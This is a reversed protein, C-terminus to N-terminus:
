VYNNCGFERRLVEWLSCEDDSYTGDPVVGEHALMAIHEVQEFTFKCVRFRSEHIAQKHERHQARKREAFKVRPDHIMERFM